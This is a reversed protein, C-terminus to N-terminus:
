RVLLAFIFNCYKVMIRPDTIKVITDIIDEKTKAMFMVVEVISIM